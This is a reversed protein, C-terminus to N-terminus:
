EINQIQERMQEILVKLEVSAASCDYHVAKSGLTNAERNLEQMLFDLRRGVPEDRDLVREVEFLHTELRDMEEAVDYKQALLVIEQELREPDVEVKMEAARAQLRERVGQIIEPLRQKIDAVIKEAAQCRELIMKRLKSGEALRTELVRDLTKELQALLPGAVQDPDPSEYEIVGPWRLIDFPNVAISRSIRGAIQDTADLLGKVLSENVPLGNDETITPEYRLNCDVKGRSIRQSITERVATELMRLEDPFRLNIELYRHNVTKIEWIVHGADGTEETRGFATMSTIM